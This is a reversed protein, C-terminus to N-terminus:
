RVCWFLDCLEHWGDVVRTHHVEPAQLAGEARDAHLILEFLHCIPLCTNFREEPENRVHDDGFTDADVGGFDPRECRGLSRFFPGFLLFRLEPVEFSSRSLVGGLPTNM